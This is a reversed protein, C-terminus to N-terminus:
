NVFHRFAPHHRRLKRVETWTVGLLALITSVAVGDANLASFQFVARIPDVYIVALLLALATATIGWLAPNKSWLVLPITQTRSRNTWILALNGLVLTAFTVTRADPESKDV